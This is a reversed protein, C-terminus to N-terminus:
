MKDVVFDIFFVKLKKNTEKYEQSLINRPDCMNRHKIRFYLLDGPLIEITKDLNTFSSYLAANLADVNKITPIDCSLYMAM